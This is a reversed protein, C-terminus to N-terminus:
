QGGSYRQELSIAFEKSRTRQTMVLIISVDSLPPGVVSREPVLAMLEVIDNTSIKLPSVQFLAVEPDYQYM